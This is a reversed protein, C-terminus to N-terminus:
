DNFSFQLDVPSWEYLKSWSGGGDTTREGDGDTFRYSGFGSDTGERVPVTTYTTDAATSLRVNYTSGVRLTHSVNFPPDRGM